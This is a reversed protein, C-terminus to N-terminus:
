YVRLGYNKATACLDPDNERIPQADREVPPGFLDDGRDWYAYNTGQGRASGYVVGLPLNGDELVQRTLWMAITITVLRDPGLLHSRTLNPGVGLDALEPGVNKEIAAISDAHEVDVWWGGTAGDLTFLNRADRWSRPLTGSKLFSHEPWEAGIISMLEDLTEIGDFFTLTKLFPDAAGIPRQFVQLTEGFAARPSDGYYVTTGLNDWRNWAAPDSAPLLGSSAVESFLNVAAVHSPEAARPPASTAGFSTKAIRYGTTPEAWRLRLGTRSCTQVQAADTM